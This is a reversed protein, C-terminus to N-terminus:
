FKFLLGGLFINSNIGKNPHKLSANSLHRRRYEFLLSTKKNLSFSIGGGFQPLFNYQTSQERTHQSMYLFGLGGKFYPTIKPFINFSYKILFNTGIELNNDPSSIYQFFPEFSFELNHKTPKSNNDKNFPLSFDFSVFLPLGQYDSKEKLNAKSYGTLVEVADLPFVKLPIILFFSLISFYFYRM